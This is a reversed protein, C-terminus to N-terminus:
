NYVVDKRPPATGFYQNVLVSSPAAPLVPRLTTAEMRVGGLRAGPFLHATRHPILHLENKYVRGHRHKISFIDAIERRNVFQLDM